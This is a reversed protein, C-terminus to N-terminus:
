NELENIRQTTPPCTKGTGTGCWTGGCSHPGTCSPKWILSGNTPNLSDLSCTFSEFGRHFCTPKISDVIFVTCGGDFSVTASGQESWSPATAARLGPAISAASTDRNAPSCRTRAPGQETAHSAASTTQASSVPYKKCVGHWCRSSHQYSVAARGSSQATM